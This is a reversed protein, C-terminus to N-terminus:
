ELRGGGLAVAPGPVPKALPLVVTATTGQGLASALDLQGHMRQVLETAIALGLGAGRSTAGDAPPATRYFRDFVRPLHEPAIGTGTDGITLRAWSGDHSVGLVVRGGAPTHRLANDALIRLVQRVRPLNALGWTPQADAELRVGRADALPRFQAVIEEAVEALAVPELSLPTQGADLRALDLLEDLLQTLEEADRRLRRVEALTEPPLGAGERELVEARARLVAVPTRLEHSADAIFQRQQELVQLIPRMARGTLLTSGLVALGLGVVASLVFAQWLRGEDEQLEHALVPAHEQIEHLNALAPMSMSVLLVLGLVVLNWAALGWRLRRTSRM